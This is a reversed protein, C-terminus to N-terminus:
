ENSHESAPERLANKNHSVTRFTHLLNVFSCGLLLTNEIFNKTDVHFDCKPM